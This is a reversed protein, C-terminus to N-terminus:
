KNVDWSLKARLAPAKRSFENLAVLNDEQAFGRQSLVEAGSAIEGPEDEDADVDVERTETGPEHAELEDDDEGAVTPALTQGHFFSRFLVDFEDERNKPISLMAIAASRIDQMSQPGLLGIAEIFGMTQDPSIAFGHARLIGAFDVFTQSARPIMM